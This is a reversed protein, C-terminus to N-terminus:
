WLGFAPVGRLRTSRRRTCGRQRGVKRGENPRFEIMHMTEPSGTFSGWAEIKADIDNTTWFAIELTMGDSHGHVLEM